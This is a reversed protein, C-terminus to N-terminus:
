QRDVQGGAQEWRMEQVLRGDAAENNCAHEQRECCATDAGEAEEEWSVRLGQWGGTWRDEGKLCDGNVGGRKGGGTGARCCAGCGGMGWMVYWVVWWVM